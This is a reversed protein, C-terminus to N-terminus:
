RERSEILDGVIRRLEATVHDCQRSVEMSQLRAGMVLSEYYAVDAFYRELVEIWAILPADLPLTVGGSGVTEPLAGRDSALVPIGAILAEAATRGFAEEVVCPMLLCRSRRLVTRMDEVRAIREVNRLQSLAREVKVLGDDRTANEWGGVVLFRRWPLARAMEVVRDGGKMPHPNVVLVSDGRADVRYDRPDIPPRIIATPEGTAATVLNGIFRSEPRLAGPLSGASM